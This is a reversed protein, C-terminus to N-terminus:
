ALACLLGETLDHWVMEVEAFGADRLAAAHFSRTPPEHQTPTVAEDRARVHDALSPEARVTAWWEDWGQAGNSMAAAERAEGIDRVANALTGWPRDAPLHDGNCLLGGPVLLGHLQTYLDTLQGGTLWHTATTSVIAHFRGGPLAQSWRPDRLDAQVWTPRPGSPDAADAGLALLLPDMDVAVVEAAPFRHLVRTALSGPGCAVDLVRRGTAPTLREVLDLMVEFRTERHAIYTEQQRDWEQVLSRALSHRDTTTVTM